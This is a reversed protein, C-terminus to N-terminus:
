SQVLHARRRQVGLYNASKAWDSSSLFECHKAIKADDGGDGTGHSKCRGGESAMTVTTMSMATMSMATMSVAVTMSMTMRVVAVMVVAVSVAVMVVAVPMRIPMAMSMSMAAAPPIIPPIGPAAFTPQQGGGAPNPGAILFFAGARGFGAGANRAWVADCGQLAVECLCNTLGFPNSGKVGQNFTLHEVPQAVPEQAVM